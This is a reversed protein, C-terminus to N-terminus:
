RPTIKKLTDELVNSMLESAKIWQKTKSIKKMEDSQGTSMYAIIEDEYVSPSYM